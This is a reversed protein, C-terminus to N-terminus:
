GSLLIQQFKACLDRLTVHTVLLFSCATPITKPRKKPRKEIVDSKLGFIGTFLIKLFNEFPFKSQEM